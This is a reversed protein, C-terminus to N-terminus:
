SEPTPFTTLLTFNLFFLRPKPFLQGDGRGDHPTGTNEQGWARGDVTWRSVGASGACLLGLLFVILDIDPHAVCSVQDQFLCVLDPGEVRYIASTLM